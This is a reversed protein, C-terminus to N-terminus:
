SNSTLLVTSAKTADAKEHCTYEVVRDLKFPIHVNITAGVSHREFIDVDPRMFNGYQTIELHAM